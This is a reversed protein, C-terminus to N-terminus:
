PKDCEEKPAVYDTRCEAIFEVHKIILAADEASLDVPLVLYARRNDKLRIPFTDHTASM